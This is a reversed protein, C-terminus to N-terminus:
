FLIPALTPTYPTREFPRLFQNPFYITFTHPPPSIPVPTHGKGDFLPIYPSSFLPTSIFRVGWTYIQVRFSLHVGVLSVLHMLIQGQSKKSVGHTQCHNNQLFWLFLTATGATLPFPYLDQTCKLLLNLPLDKTDKTDVRPSFHITFYIPHRPTWAMGISQEYDKCWALVKSLQYCQLPDLAVM